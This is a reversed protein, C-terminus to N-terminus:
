NSCTFFSAKNVKRKEELLFKFIGLAKTTAYSLYLLEPNEPFMKPSPIKLSFMAVSPLFRESSFGFGFL